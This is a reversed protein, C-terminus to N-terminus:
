HDISKAAATNRRIIGDAEAVAATRTRKDFLCLERGSRNKMHAQPYHGALLLASYGVRDDFDLREGDPHASRLGSAAICASIVEDAYESWAQRTSGAALTVTGATAALLLRGPRWRARASRLLCGMM